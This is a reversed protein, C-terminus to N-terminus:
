VDSKQRGNLFQLAFIVNCYCSLVIKEPEGCELYKYFSSKQGQKYFFLQKKIQIFIKVVSVNFRQMQM